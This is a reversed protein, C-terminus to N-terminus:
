RHLDCLSELRENYSLLQTQKYIQNEAGHKCKIGFVRKPWRVSKNEPEEYSDLEENSAWKALVYTGGQKTSTRPLFETMNKRASQVEVSSFQFQARQVEWEYGM